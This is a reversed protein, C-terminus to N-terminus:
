SVTAKTTSTVKTQKPSDLPPAKACFPCFAIRIVTKMGPLSREWDIFDVLNEPDPVDVRQGVIGILYVERMRCCYPEPVPPTPDSM